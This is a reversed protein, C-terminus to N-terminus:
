ASRTSPARGAVAVRETWRTRSRENAEGPMSVPSTRKSRETMPRTETVADDRHPGRHSVGWARRGIVGGCGQDIVSARRDLELLGAVKGAGRALREQGAVRPPGRVEGRQAAIGREGCLGDLRHRGLEGPLLAQAGGVIECRPPEPPLRPREERPEAGVGLGPLRQGGRPSAHAAARSSSSAPRGASAAGAGELGRQPNAGGVGGGAQRQPAEQRPVAAGLGGHLRELGEIGGRGLAALGQGQEAAAEDLKTQLLGRAGEAVLHGAEADDLLGGGALRQGAGGAGRASAREDEAAVLGDALHRGRRVGPHELGDVADGALPHRHLEEGPEALLLAAVGEEAELALGAGEGLEAVGVDDGQAGVVGLAWGDDEGPHGAAGERIPELALGHGRGARDLDGAGQEGREALGVPEADEVAVHLGGVDEEVVDAGRAEGVEAGGVQAIERAGGRGAGDAGERVHRGLLAEAARGADGAVDVADAHEEALEEGAGRRGRDDIAEIGEGAGAVGVEALGM